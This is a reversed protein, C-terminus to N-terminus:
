QGRGCWDAREVRETHPMDLLCHLPHELLIKVVYQCMCDPTRAESHISYCSQALQPYYDEQKATGAYARICTYVAYDCVLWMTTIAISSMLRAISQRLHTCMLMM